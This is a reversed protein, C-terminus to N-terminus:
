KYWPAKAKTDYNGGNAGNYEPSAVADTNAMSMKVSVLIGHANVPKEYKVRILTAIAAGAATESSSTNTPTHLARCRWLRRREFRMVTVFLVRAM